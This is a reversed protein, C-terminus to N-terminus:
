NEFSYAIRGNAGALVWVGKESSYCIGYIPTNDNQFGNNAIASWNVGSNSSYFARGLSDAAIFGGNGYAVSTMQTNVTGFPLTPPATWSQGDASLAAQGVANDVGGVAVFRGGGFAISNVFGTSSFISEPGVAGTWSGTPNAAYAIHGSGGGAVYVENGYSVSNIYAAPGTNTFTTATGTLTTWATLNASYAIRGQSGSLLWYGSGFVGGKANFNTSSTGMGQWSDGDSSQAWHYNGSSAGTAVFSGGGFYGHMNDTGFAATDTTETWNVLDSSVGSYSVSASGSGKRGVAVFVGNGYSIKNIVISDDDLDVVTWAGPARNVALGDETEIDCGTFVLLSTALVAGIIKLIRKM